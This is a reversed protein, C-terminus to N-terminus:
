LMSIELMTLDDQLHINNSYELLDKEVTELSIQPNNPYGRKKLIELLGEMGLEENNFNNIETAGDTYILLKDDRHFPLKIVDYKSSEFMGLALGTLKLIKLEEKIFLLPYPMGASSIHLTQEKLDIVACMAVAFSINDGSLANLSENMFFLFVEPHRMLELYRDTLSHLHMTYLAAAVGHGMVDAVLVGYTDKDIQHIRYFDGGIVDFPTYHIRFQIRSDQPANAQLISKQIDKAHQLDKYTESLDRFCEVGGIIEGHEDYVPAVTVHMPIRRGDKTNAFLIIPVNSMEGTQISRHLPCFAKGCLSHGANDVHCLIGDFCGKGRIEEASWGTIKEASKSWYVIERNRNTVYVGDRLSNM